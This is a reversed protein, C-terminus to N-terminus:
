NVETLIISASVSIKSLVHVHTKKKLKHLDVEYLAVPNSLSFANKQSMKGAELNKGQLFFTLNYKSRGPDLNANVFIM